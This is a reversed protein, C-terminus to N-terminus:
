DAMPPHMKQSSERVREKFFLSPSVPLTEKLGRKKLFLPFPSNL